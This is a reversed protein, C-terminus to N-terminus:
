VALQGGMERIFEPTSNAIFEQTILATHPPTNDHQFLFEHGIMHHASPLMHDRLIDIYVVANINDKVWVLSGVGSSGMCGWVM